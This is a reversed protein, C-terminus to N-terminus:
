PHCLNCNTGNDAHELLLGRGHCQRCDFSPEHWGPKPPALGHSPAAEHCVVCGSAELPFHCTLCHTSRVGGWPGAHSLPLVEAHCRDCSAPEHCTACRQRDIRALISHGRLRWHVDHSEPPEVLHCGACASDRHCLDCRNSTAPDARRCIPGHRRKWDHLHSEPVWSERIRSHCTACDDPVSRERHCATCDDMRVAQAEGVVRSEEIGRHCTSCDGVAQVHRLHAFVVEDELASVGAARFRGDEDFLATIRREEPKEADIVDHCFACGDSSPMGPHELAAASEHCNICELGEGMVHTEHSFALERTSGTLADILVCGASSLLLAAALGGYARKRHGGRLLAM